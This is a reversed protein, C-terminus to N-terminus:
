SPNVPADFVAGHAPNQGTLHYAQDYISVTTYGPPAASENKAM